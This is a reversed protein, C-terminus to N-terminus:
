RRRHEPASSNKSDASPECARPSSSPPRARPIACPRGAPLRPRFAAAAANAQLLRTRQGGQRHPVSTGEEYRLEVRYKEALREFPKRRSTDLINLERAPADAAVFITIM